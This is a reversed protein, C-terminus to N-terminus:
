TLIQALSFSLIAKTGKGPVSELLLGGGFREAASKALFLGLGLGKGPDKTTYFPEVAKTLTEADMGTGKDEVEIFLFSQDKRCTVRVPSAPESADIGNKILGRIIREITRFPMRISLNGATNSFHIQHPYKEELPALIEDMLEDIGFEEMSEALHEGADAAMQYLIERCREIQSRILLTDDILESSGNDKKLSHLMEGAAVAITALPTSFEHAAGAALTALSALKENRHKEKQLDIRTKQHEDLSKQIKSVFFVVFFATVAFAVWMGQLHLEMHEAIQPGAQPLTHCSQQVTSQDALSLNAQPINPPLFFLGAYCFITFAALSWSWRPRMLIAGVVIHVLFLFTFPNMPGGSYHLLATLLIVDLFMVVAFLWNPIAAQEKQYLYHFYINSLAEFAIIVSLILVPIEIDFFLYVILVLFAQCALAGWRLLLLWAFGIKSPSEIPASIAPQSHPISM